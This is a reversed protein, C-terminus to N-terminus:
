GTSLSTDRITNYFFEAAERDQNLTFNECYMKGKLRRRRKLYTIEFGERKTKKEISCSVGEKYEGIWYNEGKKAWNISLQKSLKVLAQSMEHATQYRKTPDKHCAKQIVRIVKLPVYPQFRIDNILTGKSLSSSLDPVDYLFSWDALNNILRFLTMGVAFIDSLISPKRTNYYEPAMHVEYDYKSHIAIDFEEQLVALGFDALQYVNRRILINNPKIDRHLVGFSHAHELGALINIICCLAEKLTLFRSKVISHISGDPLYEMIIVFKEEDEVSYIDAGYIKVINDHQCRHQIQAEQFRSKFLSPESVKIVKIARPEDLVTDHALFVKSFYGEGIKSQIHFKGINFVKNEM